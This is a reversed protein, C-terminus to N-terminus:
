CSWFEMGEKSITGNSVIDDKVMKKVPFKRITMCPGEIAVSGLVINVRAGCELRVDCIPHKENVKRDM